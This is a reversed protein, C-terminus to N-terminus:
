EARERKVEDRAQLLARNSALKGYKKAHEWLDQQMQDIRKIREALDERLTELITSVPHKSIEHKITQRYTHKICM